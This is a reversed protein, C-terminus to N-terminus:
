GNAGVITIAGWVRHNREAQIRLAAALGYAVTAESFRKNKSILKAIALQFIAEDVDPPVDLFGGDSPQIEIWKLYYLRATPYTLTGAPRPDFIVEGEEHLNRMTYLRPVPGGSTQDSRVNLWQSFPIWDVTVRTKGTSDIMQVNLPTRVFDDLPYNPTEPNSILTIDQITLNFRWAVSNFERVAADWARGARELAEPRQGGGVYESLELAADGRTRNQFTQPFPM